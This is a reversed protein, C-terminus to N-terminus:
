QRIKIIIAIIILLIGIFIVINQYSFITGGVNSGTGGVNSEDNQYFSKDKLGTFPNIPDFTKGDIIKGAEFLTVGGLTATTGDAQQIQQTNLFDNMKNVPNKNDTNYMGIKFCGNDGWDEGWSNRVYWYDVKGFNPVNDDSGWGIIAVAHNGMTQFPTPSIVVRDKHSYDVNNIYIGNTSTYDGGMFNKPVAYSGLAPGHAIIHTKVVNIANKNTQLSMFTPNKVTYLLHKGTFYCGCSPILSNIDVEGEEIEYLASSQKKTKDFHKLDKGKCIDSGDCWSYDVCSNAALGDKVITKLLEAPAGGKCKGQPYCALSYTTSLNPNDKVYGAVVFADSVASATSIAWCSGCVGQAQAKGILRKKAKTEESDVESDEMWNWNKPLEEGLAMLGRVSKTPTYEPLIAFQIDTNLPPYIKEIVTPASLSGLPPHTVHQIVFPKMSRLSNIYSGSTIPKEM